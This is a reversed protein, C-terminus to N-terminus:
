WLTYIKYLSLGSDILNNLTSYQIYKKYDTILCLYILLESSGVKKKKKKKFTIKGFNM